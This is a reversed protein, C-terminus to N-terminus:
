GAPAATDDRSIFGDEVGITYLETKTRVTLGAKAYKDRVRDIYQKATSSAVGMRRAVSDLKLGCAYLQLALLEQDSLVPRDVQDLTIAQALMPSMWPRGSLAARVAAGLDDMSDSKAVVGLAGARLMRQVHRPSGAASVILVAAGHERLRIIHQEQVLGAGGLDLDLLVLDFQEGETPLEELNDAATVTHGAERMMRVLADRVLVHDDVVAIHSM